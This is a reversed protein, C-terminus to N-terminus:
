KCISYPPITTKSVTCTEGPPCQSTSPDTPDCMWAETSPDACELTPVCAVSAAGGQNGNGNGNGNGVTVCCVTGTPSGAAICDAAKACPLSLGNNDDCDQSTDCAFNEGGNGDDTICCIQSAPDCSASGCSISDAPPPPASDKEIGADDSPTVVQSADPVPNSVSSADPDPTSPPGSDHSPPPSTKSADPSALSGTSADAGITGPDAAEELLSSPAGSCGTVAVAVACVCSGVYPLLAFFRMYKGIV